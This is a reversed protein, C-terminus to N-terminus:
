YEMLFRSNTRNVLNLLVLFRLTFQMVLAVIGTFVVLMTVAVLLELLSMGLQETKNARLVQSKLLMNNM